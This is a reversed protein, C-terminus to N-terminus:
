SVFTTDYIECNWSNTDHAKDYSYMETKKALKIKQRRVVHFCSSVVIIFRYSYHVHYIIDYNNAYIILM